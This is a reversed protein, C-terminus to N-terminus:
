YFYYNKLLIWRNWGKNQNIDKIQSLYDYKLPNFDNNPYKMMFNNNQNNIYNNNSMNNNNIMSEM